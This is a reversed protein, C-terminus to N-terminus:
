PLGPIKLPTDGRECMDWSSLLDVQHLLAWQLILREAGPPIDGSLKILPAIGYRGRCGAYRVHFHPPPHDDWFMQVLIGHFFSLSPM